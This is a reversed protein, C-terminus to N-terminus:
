RPNSATLTFTDGAAISTVRNELPGWRESFVEYNLAGTPVSEIMKSSRAPVRHGVGNVVFLLEESYLNVIAVRGTKLAANGNGNPYASTRKENPGLKAIIDQLSKMSSRFEEMFAKDVAPTGLPGTGAALMKKRLSEVQDTLDDLQRKQKLQETQLASMDTKLTKISKSIDGLAGDELKKLETRFVEAIADKDTTVPKKELDDIRKILADVSKQLKELGDIKAPIPKEEQAILPPPALTVAAALLSYMTVTKWTRMMPSDGRQMTCPQVNVVPDDCTEAAPPPTLKAFPNLWPESTLRPPESTSAPHEVHHPTEVVKVTSHGFLNPLHLGLTPRDKPHAQERPQPGSTHNSNLKPLFLDVRLLKEPGKKALLNSAGWTVCGWAVGGLALMTLWFLLSTRGDGGTRTRCWPNAPPASDNEITQTMAVM